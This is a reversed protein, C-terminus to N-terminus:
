APVTLSALRRLLHITPFPARITFDAADPLGESYISHMAMPHFLVQAPNQLFAAANRAVSSRLASMCPARCAAILGPFRGHSNVICRLAQIQAM